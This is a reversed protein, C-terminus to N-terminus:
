RLSMADYRSCRIDFRCILQRYRAYRCAADAIAYDAYYRVPQAPTTDSGRKKRITSQAFADVAVVDAHFYFDEVIQCRLSM